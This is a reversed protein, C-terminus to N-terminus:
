GTGFGFLGRRIIEEAVTEPVNTEWEGKQSYSRATITDAFAFYTSKEPRKDGVRELV